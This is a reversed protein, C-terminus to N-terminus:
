HRREVISKFLFICEMDTLNWIDTTYLSWISITYVCTKEFLQQVVKDDSNLFPDKHAHKQVLAGELQLPM